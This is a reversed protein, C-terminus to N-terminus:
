QPKRFEYSIWSNAAVGGGGKGFAKNAECVERCLLLLGFKYPHNFLM